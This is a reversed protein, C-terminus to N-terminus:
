ERSLVMMREDEGPTAGTDARTQEEHVALLALLAVEPLDLADAFEDWVHGRLQLYYTDDTRHVLPQGHFQSRWEYVLDEVGPNARAQAQHRALLDRLEDATVDHSGAVRDIIAPDFPALLDDEGTM